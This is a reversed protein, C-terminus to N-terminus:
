MWIQHGLCTMLGSELQIFMPLSSLLGIIERLHLLSYYAINWSFYQQSNLLILISLANGSFLLVRNNNTLTRSFDWMEDASISLVQFLFSSKSFQFSIKSKSFEDMWITYALCEQTNFICFPWLMTIMRWNSWDLSKRQIILFPHCAARALISRHPQLSVRRLYSVLFYLSLM